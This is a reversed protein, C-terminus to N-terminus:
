LSAQLGAEAQSGRELRFCRGRGDCCGSWSLVRVRSAISSRFSFAISLLRAGAGGTAVAALFGVFGGGRLLHPPMLRHVLLLLWVIFVCGFDGAAAAAAPPCRPTSAACPRRPSSPPCRRAPSGSCPRSTSCWRSTSWTCGWSCAGRGAGGAPGDVGAATADGADRRGPAKRHM